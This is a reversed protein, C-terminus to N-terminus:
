FHNSFTGTNGSLWVQTAYAQCKTLNQGTIRTLKYRLLLEPPWKHICIIVAATNKM